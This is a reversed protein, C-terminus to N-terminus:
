PDMRDKFAKWLAPDGNIPFAVPKKFLVTIGGLAAGAFSGVLLGSAAGETVTYGFIWADPDASAAGLIAFLGGGTAAGLLVNNGGARKTKIRGIEAANLSINGSARKLLLTNDTIALIRGKGMKKGAPDYVRVFVGAKEAAVQATIGMSMILCFLFVPYKM